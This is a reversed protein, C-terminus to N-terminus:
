DKTKRRRRLFLLAGVSLGFLGYLLITYDFSKELLTIASDGSQLPVVLYSGDVVTEMERWIGDASRIQVAACDADMGEPLRLRVASLINAGTVEFAWTEVWDGDEGFSSQELKTMAVAADMEFDGQVLLVPVNNRLEMSSIATKKGPLALM